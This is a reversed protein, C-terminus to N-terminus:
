IDELAAEVMTRFWQHEPDNDFSRNWMLGVDFEPVDYPLEIAKVHADGGLVEVVKGPMISIVDSHRLAYLLTTLTTFEAVSKLGGVMGPNFELHTAELLQQETISDGYKRSGAWVAVILRDTYLTQFSVQELERFAGIFPAIMLDLHSSRIRDRTDSALQTFIVRTYPAVPHIQAIIPGAVRQLLFDTTAVTFHRQLKEPEFHVEEILSEIRQIIEEVPELLGEARRTPVMARGSRVFLEDEFAWRLRGLSASVASQTLNLKEGVKTTNPEKLLERLVYM